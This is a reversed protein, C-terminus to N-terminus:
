CCWGLVGADTVSVVLIPLHVPMFSIMISIFICPPGFFHAGVPRDIFQKM